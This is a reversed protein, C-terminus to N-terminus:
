SGTRGQGVHSQAVYGGLQEEDLPRVSRANSAIEAKLVALAALAKGIADFEDSDTLPPPSEALRQQIAQEAKFICSPLKEFDTQLAVERYLKQWAYAVSM